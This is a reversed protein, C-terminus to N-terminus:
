LGGPDGPAKIKGLVPLIEEQVQIQRYIKSGKVGCREILEKAKNLAVDLEEFPKIGSGTLSIKSDRVEDLVPKLLKLQDVLSQCNGQNIETRGNLSVIGHISQSINDLVEQLPPDM